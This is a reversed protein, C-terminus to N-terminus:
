FYLVAVGLWLLLISILIIDNRFYTSMWVVYHHLSLLTAAVAVTLRGIRDRLWYLGMLSPLWLLSTIMRGAFFDWNAKPMVLASVYYLFPGHTWPTYQYTGETALVWSRYLHVAEDNQLPWAAATQVRLILGVFGCVLLLWQLNRNSLVSM